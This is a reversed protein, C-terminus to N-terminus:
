VRTLREEFQFFSIYVFTIYLHSGSSYFCSFVYIDYSLSDIGFFCYECNFELVLTNELPM